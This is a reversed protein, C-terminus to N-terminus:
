KLQIHGKLSFYQPEEWFFKQHGSIEYKDTMPNPGLVSFEMSLNKTSSFVFNRQELTAELRKIKSFDKLYYVSLSKLPLNYKTEWTKV